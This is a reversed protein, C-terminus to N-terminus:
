EGETSARLDVARISAACIALAPTAANARFPKPRGKVWIEVRERQKAPNNPNTGAYILQPWHGEGSPVLTMAADISATYRPPTYCSQYLSEKRKEWAEASIAILEAAGEAYQRDFYAVREPDILKLIALDLERSPGSAQELRTSLDTM